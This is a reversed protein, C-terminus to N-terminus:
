MGGSYMSELQARLSDRQKSFEEMSMHKVNVSTGAEPSPRRPAPPPTLMPNQNDARPTPTQPYATNLERQQKEILPDQIPKLPDIGVTSPTPYSSRLRISEKLSADLEEKTNGTVLDPICTALNESILKERYQQLENKRNEETASLVPQVVEKIVGPLVEKFDEKTVFVNKLKEVISDMDSEGTVRVRSLNNIQTKLSEYQSYLKAKEVQSVRQIFERLEPTDKVVYTVGGITLSEPIGVKKEEENPM